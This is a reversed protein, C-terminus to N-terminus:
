RGVTRRAWNYVSLFFLLQGSPIASSWVNAMCQNVYVFTIVNLLSWMIWVNIWTNFLYMICTIDSLMLSIRTQLIQQDFVLSIRASSWFNLMACTWSFLCAPPLMWFNRFFHYFWYDLSTCTGIYLKCPLSFVCNWSYLDCETLRWFHFTWHKDRLQKHKIKV